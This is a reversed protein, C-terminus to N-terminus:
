FLCVFLYIFNRTFIDWYEIVCSYTGSSPMIWHFQNQGKRTFAIRMLFVQKLQSLRIVNHHSFLWVFINKCLDHARRRWNALLYQAVKKGFSGKGRSFDHNCAQCRIINDHFQKGVGYNTLPTMGGKELDVGRGKKLIGGKRSIWSTGM